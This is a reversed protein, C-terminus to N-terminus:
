RNNSDFANMPIDLKEADEEVETEGTTESFMGERGFLNIRMRQITCVYVFTHQPQPNTLYEPPLVNPDFKFEEPMDERRFRQSYVEYIRDFKLGPEPEFNSFAGVAQAALARRDVLFLIRRAVGSKLLRYISSVAVFTKGTGTAMAVLMRRKSRELSQEIAEIAERQYPRLFQNDNPTRRLLELSKTM